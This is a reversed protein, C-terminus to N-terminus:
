DHHQGDEQVPHVRLLPQLCVVPCGFAPSSEYPTDAVHDGPDVCGGQFTHFLGFWHGAEHTVTKGEGFRPLFSGGPVSRFDAVVGDRWFSDENGNKLPFYRTERTLRPLLIPHM